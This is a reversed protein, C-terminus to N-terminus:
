EEKNRLREVLSEKCMDNYCLSPLYYAILLLFPMCLIIPLLTFKYTFYWAGSIISTVAIYAIGSGFIATILFTAAVYVFSECRVMSKLQKGTMGVAQLMAFERRRNLISTVTSNFFNLIGILALIFSLAGGVVIFMVEVQHYQATYTSKSVLKLNAAVHNCYDNIEQKAKNLYKDKVDFNIMLPQVSSYNKKYENDALILNPGINTFEHASISDPIDGIALVKYKKINGRGYNITVTDGIDYYHYKEDAAYGSVIVYKGSKLKNFDMKGEYIDLQKSTYKDVGYVYTDLIKTTKVYELCSKQNKNLYREKFHHVIKMANRYGTESAKQDCEKAYVKGVDRLGKLGEVKKIVGATVGELNKNFDTGTISADSVSFDSLILGSVFKNMDFGNVLTYVSNLLILSLSLSLVVAIFQKKGRKLNAVAMSFTNIKGTKKKVTKIGKNQGTYNIAEIPSVKSALRGPRICSLYITLLTFLLAGIFIVPHFTIKLEILGDTFQRLFPLLLKSIFWGSVLGLPIGIISLTIAQNRVIIKLQKGTTGITKLLGYFQIDKVVSIYFINYIILYGSFVILLGMIGIFLLSKADVAESTYAWNAGYHVESPKFNCRKMLANIKGQINWSNSFWINTDILGACDGIEVQHLPNATVTAVKNCYAKSVWVEQAGALVDGKWYGCLTFTDKIKKKHVTFELRIKEGLKYPLGLSDLVLTSTAIDKYYRPMRGATPYSFEWKASQAESYRIETPRKKLKQDEAQSIFINYSIKKIGTDKAAINYQKQIIHKFGAHASTGVQHMAEHQSAEMISDGITLLSTFLVCTLMIALIVIINRRRNNLLIRKSIRNIVERNKVNLM